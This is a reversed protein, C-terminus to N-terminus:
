REVSRKRRNAEHYEKHIRNTRWSSTSELRKHKTVETRDSSGKFSVSAFSKDRMSPRDAVCFERTKGKHSPSSYKPSSLLSHHYDLPLSEHFDSSYDRSSKSDRICSSEKFNNDPVYSSRSSHDVCSSSGGGIYYGINDNFSLYERM